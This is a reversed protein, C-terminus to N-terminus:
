TADSMVVASVLQREVYKQPEPFSSLWGSYEKLLAEKLALATGLLADM